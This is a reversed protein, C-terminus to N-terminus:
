AGRLEFLGGPCALINPTIPNAAWPGGCAVSLRCGDARVFSSIPGAELSWGPPCMAFPPTTVPLSNSRPGDTFRWLRVDSEDDSRLALGREDPFYLQSRIRRGWGRDESPVDEGVYVQSGDRRRVEVRGEGVVAILQAGASLALLEAGTEFVVTALQKMSPLEYLVVERVRERVQARITGCPSYAVCYWHALQFEHSRPESPVPEGTSMRWLAFGSHGCILQETGVHYWPFAPGGELYSGLELQLMAVHAGSRGDLLEPGDVLRTGDPSFSPPLGSARRAPIAKHRDWLQAVGDVIVCVHRGSSSWVAATASLELTWRPQNGVVVVERYTRVLLEESGVRDHVESVPASFEYELEVELSAVDLVYLLGCYDEYWGYVYIKRGDSSLRADASGLEPWPLLQPDSTETRLLIPGREVRPYSDSAAAVTMATETDLRGDPWSWLYRQAPGASAPEFAICSESRFQASGRWFQPFALEGDGHLLAEPGDITVIPRLARLWPGRADLEAHWRRRASELLSFELTCADFDAVVVQPHRVWTSRRSRAIAWIRAELQGLEHGHDARLEELLDDLVRQIADPGSHAAQELAILGFTM